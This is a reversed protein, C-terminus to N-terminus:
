INRFSFCIENVFIIYKCSYENITNNLHYFGNEKTQKNKMFNLITDKMFKEQQECGALAVSM